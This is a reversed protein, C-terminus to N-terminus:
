AEIFRSPEDKRLVEVTLDKGIFYGAEELVNKMTIMAQDPTNNNQSLHALYVKPYDASFAGDNLFRVVTDACTENSLHGHDSLIRKKVVYPYSGYMLINPEHNSEIVLVDSSKILQYSDELVVGTDTIVSIQKGGYSFAYSVPELTDHSLRFPAVEIDGIVFTEDASVINIREQSEYTLVPGRLEEYKDIIGNLTGRSLYLGTNDTKNMLAKLGAVHDSHEHTVLVADIQSLELDKFKLYEKIKRLSIGVDLLIVTNDSRVVYCNGSSSSALSSIGFSM